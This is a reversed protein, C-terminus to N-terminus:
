PSVVEGATVLVEEGVQRGGGSTTLELRLFGRPDFGRFIGEMTEGAANCRLREGVEHLSLDRYRRVAERGDGAHALERALDEIMAWAFDALPPPEDLIQALSVAGPAGGPAIAALEDDGLGHNVGVGIVVGSGGPKAENGGRGQRSSVGALLLGAVKRGDVLLDNPWKIRCRGEGAFRNVTRAVAVPVLLPLTPMESPKAVPRVISMWVGGGAPSSWSKGGRGKGGAQEWAVLTLRPVALDEEAYTDLIRRGVVNTSEVRRLVVLNAAWGAPISGDANARAARATLDRAYAAFAPDDVPPSGAGPHEPADSDPALTDPGRM